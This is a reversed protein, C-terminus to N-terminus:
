TGKPTGRTNDGAPEDSEPDWGFAITRWMDRYDYDTQLALNLRNYSSFDSVLHILQVIGKDSLGTDRLSDLDDDSVSKPDNNAKLAVNLITRLRNDEVMDLGEEALAKVYDEETKLGYNLITCFAATCYPCGNAKSVLIGIHQIEPLTLEGLQWLVKTSGLKAKLYEPFNMEVYFHNPVAGEMDTVWSFIEQIIPDDVRDPKVIKVRAM